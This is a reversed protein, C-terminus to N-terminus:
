EGFRVCALPPDRFHELSDSSVVLSVSATALPLHHADGVVRPWGRDPQHRPERLCLGATRAAIPATRWGGLDIVIGSGRLIKSLLVRKDSSV